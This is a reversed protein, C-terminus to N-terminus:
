GEKDDGEEEAAKEGEEEEERASTAPFSSPSVPSERGVGSHGLATEERLTDEFSEFAEM